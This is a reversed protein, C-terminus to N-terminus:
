SFGSSISIYALPHYRALLSYAEKRKRTGSIIPPPYSNEQFALSWDIFILQLPEVGESSSGAIVTFAQENRHFTKSIQTPIVHTLPPIETHTAIPTM